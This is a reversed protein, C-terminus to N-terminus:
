GANVCSAFGERVALEAFAAPDGALAHVTMLPAAQEDALHGLQELVLHLARHVDSAHVTRTTVTPATITALCGPGFPSARYDALVSL